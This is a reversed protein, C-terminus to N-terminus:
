VSGGAETCYRLWADWLNIVPRNRTEAYTVTTRTGGPGGSYLALVASGRDVMAFDRQAYAETRQYPSFVVVEAARARIARYIERDRQPWRDEQGEFPIIAILPIGLDLAAIAVATDWGRALGSILGEAPLRAIEETAFLRLWDFRYTPGIKEPRHGTATYLLV